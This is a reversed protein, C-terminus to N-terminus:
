RLEVVIKLRPPVAVGDTVPFAIREDDLSDAEAVVHPEVDLAARHRRLALHGLAPPSRVVTVEFDVYRDVVRFRVRLREGNAHAVLKREILLQDLENAILVLSRRLM